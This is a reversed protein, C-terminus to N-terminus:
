WTFTFKEFFINTVMQKQRDNILSYVKSLRFSQEVKFGTTNHDTVKNSANLNWDVLIKLVLFFNLGYDKIFSQSYIFTFINLHCSNHLFLSFITAFKFARFVIRSFHKSAFSM